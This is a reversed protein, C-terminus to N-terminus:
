LHPFKPKSLNILKGLTILVVLHYLQNHSELSQPKCVEQWVMEKFLRSIEM